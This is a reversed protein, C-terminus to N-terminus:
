LVSAGVIIPVPISGVPFSRMMDGVNKDWRRFIRFPLHLSRRARGHDVRASSRSPSAKVTRDTDAEKRGGTHSPTRTIRPRESSETKRNGKSRRAFVVAAMAGEVVAGTLAGAYAPGGVVAVAVGAAALVGGGLWYARIGYLTQFTLYRGGVMLLLAPFFLDVRYLSLAYAVALTLLLWVTGELALPGLPNNPDHSGSRGLGKSLAIALPHILMGGGLLAWVAAQSGSLVATLGAALWVTASAAVGPAGSYYARRMDQQAEAVTM